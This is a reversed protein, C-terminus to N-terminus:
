MIEDDNLDDLSKGLAAVQETLANELPKEMSTFFVEFVFQLKSEDNLVNVVQEAIINENTQEFLKVPYDKSLNKLSAKGGMGLLQSYWSKYFLAKTRSHIRNEM